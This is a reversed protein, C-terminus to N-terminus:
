SSEEREKEKEKEKFATSLLGIVSVGGGGGGGGGTGTKISRSIDGDTPMSSAVSTSLPSTLSSSSSSTPLSPSSSSSSSSSIIRNIASMVLDRETVDHFWLGLILPSGATSCKIMVYPPQLKSKTVSSLDLSFDTPASRNLVVLSNIPESDRRTIFAAGEVGLREWKNLKPDFQYIAIQTIELLIERLHSDKKQLASFNITKRSSLDVQLAM